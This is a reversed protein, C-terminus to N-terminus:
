HTAGIGRSKLLEHGSFEVSYQHSVVNGNSYQHSVGNRRSLMLTTFTANLLLIAQFYEQIFSKGFSLLIMVALKIASM